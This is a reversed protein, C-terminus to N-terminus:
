IMLAGFWVVKDSVQILEEKDNSFFIVPPTQQTVYVADLSM